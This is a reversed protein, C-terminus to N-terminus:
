CPNLSNVDRYLLSVQMGTNVATSNTIALTHILESTWWYSTVSICSYPTMSLQWAPFHISSSITTLLIFSAWFIIQSTKGEYGSDLSKLLPSSFLPPMNSFPSPAMTLTPFWCPALLPKFLYFCMCLHACVHYHKTSMKKKNFNM